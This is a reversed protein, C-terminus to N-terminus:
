KSDPKGDILPRVGLKLEAILVSLSAECVSGPIPAYILQDGLGPVAVFRQADQYFVLAQNANSGKNELDSRSIIGWAEM